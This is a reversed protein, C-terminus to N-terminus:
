RFPYAEGLTQRVSHQFLRDIGTLDLDIFALYNAESAFIAHRDFHDTRLYHVIRVDDVEDPYLSAAREDNPLNFRMPLAISSTNTAAVSLALAVQGSFYPNALRRSLTKRIPLYARYIKTLARETIFVAGANAYFPTKRESEPADRDILAYEHDFRLSRGIVEGGLINWDEVSAHGSETPFGYHAICGAVCPLDGLNRLLDELDGVIWTDADLLVHIGVNRSAADMRREIQAFLGEEAFRSMALLEIDVGDLHPAWRQMANWDVPGGLFCRIEPQWRDWRRALISLKLAAIQSLFAHTPSGAVLFEVRRKM